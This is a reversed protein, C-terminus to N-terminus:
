RPLAEVSLARTDRFLDASMLGFRPVDPLGKHGGGALAQPM